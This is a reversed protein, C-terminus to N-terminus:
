VTSDELALCRYEIFADGSGPGRTKPSPMLFQLSLLGEEDIRLSTKTSSQLARIAKSVHKFSYSVTVPEDCECTELVEKDNPYDMETSGFTGVAKLRLRPASGRQARGGPHPPYGMITLKECSPDLESLADRLWSSKLIIKLVTRDSDFPLEVQPEADFTTLEVTATAGDSPDKMVLALPYGPGGYTIRVGTLKAKGFHQDIRESGALADRQRQRPAGEPQADQEEEAGLRRWRRTKKDSEKTAATGFVNLCEVLTSLPVEFAIGTSQPRQGGMEPTAVPIGEYSFQDFCEAFIFASGLLTRADEVSVIMGSKSVAVSARGAFNIGRLLAAFYRVDSMEAYLLVNNSQSHEPSPERSRNASGQFADM